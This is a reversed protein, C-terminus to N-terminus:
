GARNQALWAEGADAGNPKTPEIAPLPATDFAHPHQQLVQQKLTEIIPAVVRWPQEGLSRMVVDFLGAPISFHLTTNPDLM